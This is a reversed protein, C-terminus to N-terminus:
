SARGDSLAAFDAAEDDFLTFSRVTRGGSTQRAITWARRGGLETRMAICPSSQDGLQVAEGIVRTGHPLNSAWWDNM